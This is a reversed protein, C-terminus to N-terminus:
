RRALSVLTENHQTRIGGARVQTKEKIAPLGISVVTHRCTRATM